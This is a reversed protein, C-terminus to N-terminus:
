HCSGDDAFQGSAAMAALSRACNMIRQDLPDNNLSEPSVYTRSNNAEVFRDCLKKMNNFENTLLQFLERDSETSVALSALRLSQQARVRYNDAWGITVPHGLQVANILTSRWERIVAMEEIGARIFDKTFGSPSASNDRSGTRGCWAADAHNSKRRFSLSGNALRALAEIQV